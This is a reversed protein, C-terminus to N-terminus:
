TGAERALRSMVSAVVNAARETDEASIDRHFVARLASAGSPLLHVGEGHCSEAVAGASATVGFRVINTEVDEPDLLVGPALSITRAFAGAHRHDDVLGPRHHELAHLAGAALIGAQRFGGGFLQKFRRARGMMSASGALASGVPAGLGKSFCVSVTDFGRAYERLTVGSAACANWIRAGDMHTALGSERAQAVVERLGDLPWVRGGGANHTNEVCVLTAPPQLASPNFAHLEGIADRMQAPTFVGRNGVIPQHTVGSLAAPGGGESRVVHSGGDMLVRDGPETHCRIAVQNTMSGTPMFVAEEMGLLHAVEEELRRITPDDGYVDDGVPAAAMAERMAESPLTVTDSRLDIM